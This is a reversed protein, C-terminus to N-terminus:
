AKDTGQAHAVLVLESGHGVANGNSEDTNSGCYPQGSAEGPGLILLDGQM